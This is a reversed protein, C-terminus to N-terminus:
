SASIDKDDCYICRVSTSFPRTHFNIFGEYPLLAINFCRTFSFDAAINHIKWPLQRMEISASVEMACQLTYIWNAILSPAVGCYKLSFSTGVPVANRPSHLTLIYKKGLIDLHWKLGNFKRYKSMDLTSQTCM